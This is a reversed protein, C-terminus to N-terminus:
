ALQFESMRRRRLVFGIGGFGLLMMAWASPEPVGSVPISAISQLGTENSVQWGGGDYPYLRILDSHTLNPGDYGAQMYLCSQNGASCFSAFIYALSNYNFLLDTGTSFLSLGSFQMGGDLSSFSSTLAGDTISMSWFTINGVGIQGLAGDTTISYTATRNPADRTGTFTQAVAQSSLFLSLATVAIITLTGRYPKAKSMLVGWIDDSSSPHASSGWVLEVRPHYAFAINNVFILCEALTIVPRALTRMGGLASM